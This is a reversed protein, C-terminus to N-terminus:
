EKGNEHKEWYLDVKENAESKELGCKEMIKSIAVDKSAGLERCTEVLKQIIIAEAKRQTEEAKRKAEEAEKRAQATNRREAQIDMKEMNEFWYGM